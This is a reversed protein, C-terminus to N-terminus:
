RRRAVLAAASLLGLAAFAATEVLWWSGVHHETARCAYGLAVGCGAAAFSCALAAGVRRSWGLIGAALLGIWWATLTLNAWLPTSAEPNGAPAFGIVVVLAVSWAVLLAGNLARVPRASRLRPRRAAPAAWLEELARLEDADSPAPRLATTM